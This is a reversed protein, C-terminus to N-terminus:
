QAHVARKPAAADAGVGEAHPKAAKREDQPSAITVVWLVAVGVIPVAHIVRLTVQLVVPVVHVGAGHVECRGHSELPADRHAAENRGTSVRGDRLRRVTRVPGRTGAKAHQARRM